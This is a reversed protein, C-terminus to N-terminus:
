PQDVQSRPEPHYMMSPSPSHAKPTAKVAQADGKPADELIQKHLQAMLAQLGPHGGLKAIDSEIETYLDCCVKRTHAFSGQSKIYEVAHFKLDANSTRQKLIHILRTDAPNARIAHIIPYSFKGETLDECYSKTQMYKDSQLNVLDDRIQFYLSMNNVLPNFDDTAESFAQMLGTALRFLGGTKDLVMQRYEDETPCAQTDRWLIDQGQGRHLNLLEQVFVSLAKPNGLRQCRELALFYVYNACNLTLPVGFVTHAVPTGRRLLSGDEIDDVLLSANHLEGIIEKIVKNTEEPIKLWVQFCDILKGRVDKGPTAVIYNYPELVKEDKVHPVDFDAPAKGDM